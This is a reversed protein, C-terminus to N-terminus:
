SNILLFLAYVMATVDGAVGLVLGRGMCPWAWFVSRGNFFGSIVSFAIYGVLSGIGGLSTFGLYM